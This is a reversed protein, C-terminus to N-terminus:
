SLLFTELASSGGAHQDSVHARKTLMDPAVMAVAKETVDLDLSGMSAEKELEAVVTSVAGERLGKELMAYALKEIRDKSARKLLEDKYFDREAAVKRLVTPVEALVERAQAASLKTTTM